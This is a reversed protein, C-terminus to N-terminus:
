ADRQQRDRTPFAWQIKQATEAACPPGAVPEERASRLQAALDLPATTAMVKKHGECPQFAGTPKFAVYPMQVVTRTGDALILFAHGVPLNKLDSPHGNFEHGQRDSYVGSSQVGLLLGADVMQYTRQVTQRTGGLEACLTASEPDPQRFIVKSATNQLVQTMVKADKGDFDRPSQTALVLGIDASRCQSILEALGCCLARGAEDVYVHFPKKAEPRAALAGALGKVDELVLRALARASEPRMQSNLEFYVIHNRAHATVLDISATPVCLRGRLADSAFTKLNARLGSVANQFADWHELDDAFQRRDDADAWTSVMRYGERDFLAQVLDLFTIAGGHRQMASLVRLLAEHSLVRYHEESGFTGVAFTRDARALADGFSIPNYSDSPGSEFSFFRFDDRRGVVTAM